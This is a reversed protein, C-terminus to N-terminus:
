IKKAKYKVHRLQFFLYFLITVLYQIFAKHAKIFNYRFELPHKEIINDLTYNKLLDFVDDTLNNVVM